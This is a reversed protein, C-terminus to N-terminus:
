LSDDDETAFSYRLIERGLSAAMIKDSGSKLFRTGNRRLTPATKTDEQNMEGEWSANTPNVKSTRHDRRNVGRRSDKFSSIESIEPESTINIEITTPIKLKNDAKTQILGETEQRSSKKNEACGGFYTNTDKQPSAKM